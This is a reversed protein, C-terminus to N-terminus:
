EAGTNGQPPLPGVPWSRREQFRSPALHLPGLAEVACDPPPNGGDGYLGDNVTAGTDSCPALGFLDINAVPNNLAYGYLNLSQPNSLDAYDLASPM